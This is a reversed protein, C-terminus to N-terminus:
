FQKLQMKKNKLICVAGKNRYIGCYNPASFLTVIYPISDQREWQHFQFGNQQVQHGRFICLLNNERLFKRVPRKGFFVSCERTFNFDFDATIAEEDGFPDAWMLDCFLGRVPIETYRDIQNIDEINVLEPSIGGHVAFYKNSIEAALPLADFLELFLEYIEIDYRNLVETRFTFSETM